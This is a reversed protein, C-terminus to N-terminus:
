INKKWVRHNITKCMPFTQPSHKGVWKTHLTQSCHIHNPQWTVLLLQNVLQSGETL